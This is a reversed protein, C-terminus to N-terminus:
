CSTCRDFNIVSSLSVEFECPHKLRPVIFNYFGHEDTLTSSVKCYNCDNAKIKLLTVIANAVPRCYKDRVEGWFILNNTTQIHIDVRTEPIFEDLCFEMSEGSYKCISDQGYRYIYLNNKIDNKPSYGYCDNRSSHCKRDYRSNHTDCGYCDKYNNCNECDGCENCEDNKNCDNCEYCEDNKHYNHCDCFDDLNHFNEFFLEEREYYEYRDKPTLNDNNMHHYNPLETCDCYNYFDQYHPTDHCEKFDDCDNTHYIRHANKSSKSSPYKEYEDTCSRNKYTQKTNKSIHNKECSKLNYVNSQHCESLFYKEYVEKM